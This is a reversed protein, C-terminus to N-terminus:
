KIEKDFKNKIITIEGKNDLKIRIDTYYKLLKKGYSTVKSRNMRIQNTYILTQNQQNKITFLMDIDIKNMEIGAISDIFIFYNPFKDLLVLITLANNVNLLMLTDLNIGKYEAYEKDFSFDSNILICNQNQSQIESILGYLLSTKGSSKDGYIELSVGNLSPLHLTSDLSTIINKTIKQQPYLFKSESNNLLNTLKSM